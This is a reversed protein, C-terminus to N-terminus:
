AAAIYMFALGIAGSQDLVVENYGGGGSDLEAFQIYQAGPPIWLVPTKGATYSYSCFGISASGYVSARAAYPLGGFCMTGSGGSLASTEVYIEGMVLSGIKVYYGHRNATYTPTGPTVSRFMTPTLSGEEYFNEWAPATGGSNVRLFQGASGMAIQSFAGSAKTLLAGNSSLASLQDTSFPVLCNEIIGATTWTGATINFTIRALLRFSKASQAATTYMVTGSDAGGAGGEATTSIESGEDFLTKSWGLVVASGTYVAYVYTPTTVGSTLGGTSGSSMTFSLASTVTADVPTTTGPTTNRFYFRCPSGSSPDAGSRTKLAYTIAGANSTMAISYNGLGQIPFQIGAIIANEAAEDASDSANSESTSANSASTAAAGQSVLAAAASAAAATANAEADAIDGADPGIEFGTSTMMLIKADSDLDDMPLSPNFAGTYKTPISAVRGTFWKLWQVVTMMRNLGAKELTEAPFPDNATLSVEQTAAPVRDIILTVGSAPAVLMTVTGGSSEGAGSVTYHSNITKVTEVQTSNVVERVVLDANAYFYYPFSFATTVGNGSFTVRTTTSSLGM